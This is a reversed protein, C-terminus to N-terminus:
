IKESKMYWQLAENYKKQKLYIDTKLEYAFTLWEMFNLKELITIGENVSKTANNLYNIEIYSATM